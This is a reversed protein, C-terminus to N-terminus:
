QLLGRQKSLPLFDVQINRKRVITIGYFWPLTLFEFDKLDLTNKLQWVYQWVDGCYNRSLYKEEPPYTDHFFVWGDPSLVKLSNQFDLRVQEKEHFGDIFIMDFKADPHKKFFEDSTLAHFTINLDKNIHSECELNPDVGVTEEACKAVANITQAQSVGIELYRKPKIHDAFFSIIDTSGKM